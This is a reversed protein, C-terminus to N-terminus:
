IQELEIKLTVFHENSYQKEIMNNSPISAIALSAGNGLSMNELEYLISNESNDVSVLTIKAKAQFPLLFQGYAAASRQLLMICLTVTQATFALYLQIPYIDYIYYGCSYLNNGNWFRNLQVNAGEIGIGLQRLKSYIQQKEIQWIIKNKKRFEEQLREITAAQEQKELELKEIRGAMFLSMLETHYDKREERHTELEGKNVINKCGYNVYPCEFIFQSCEDLHDLINGIVGKWECGRDELPCKCNIQEITTRAAGVPYLEEDKTVCNECIQLKGMDVSCANHMIGQCRSCILFNEELNSLKHLLITKKYGGYKLDSDKSIRILLLEDKSDISRKTYEMKNSITCMVPQYSM